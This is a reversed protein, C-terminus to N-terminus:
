FAERTGGESVIKVSAQFSLGRGGQLGGILDVRDNGAITTTADQLRDIWVSVTLASPQDATLRVVLVQDPHSAFVERTYRVGGARYTVRAVATDLDLERRYDTIAGDHDFAVRLDGLTQYPELRSPRGMLNKEALANAEVPMGAFLLRRVDPLAALADPNDRDRPSGMWLTEENLQIRERNVTGFLMAGIRGNGLPLGHDWQPAAARYWLTTASPTAPAPVNQDESAKPAAIVIWIVAALSTLFTM